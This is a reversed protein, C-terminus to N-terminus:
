NPTSSDQVVSEFYKKPLIRKWAFPLKLPWDPKQTKFIVTYDDPATFSENNKLIYPSWPNTSDKSGFHQLSFVVDAATLPDGNHFKVGQRINFTWTLGDPSLNYKEAIDGVVNGQQDFSLLSDYLAWGWQTAINNADMSENNFDANAYRLTESPAAGTTAPATTPAAAAARTPTAAQTTPAAAVTPAQTPAPPTTPAAAAPSTPAPAAAPGCASLISISGVVTGGVRWLFARRSWPQDNM